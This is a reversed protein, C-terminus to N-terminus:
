CFDHAPGDCPMEPFIRAVRTWGYMSGYLRWDRSRHWVIEGRENNMAIAYQAHADTNWMGAEVMEPQITLLVRMADADVPSVHQHPAGIPCAENGCHTNIM